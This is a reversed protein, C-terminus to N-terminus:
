SLLSHHHNNHDYFSLPLILVNEIPHPSTYPFLTGWSAWPSVNRGGHPVLWTHYLISYLKNLAHPPFNLSYYLCLSLSLLSNTDSWSWTSLLPLSHPSLPLLLSLPL